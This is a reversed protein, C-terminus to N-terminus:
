ATRQYDFEEFFTLAEKDLKIDKSEIHRNLGIGEITKCRSLAVYLSGEAAWNGLSIYVSDLTLGQARHVTVAYACQCAIQSISGTEIYSVEGDNIIPVLTKVTKQNVTIEEGSSTIIIPLPIKGDTFDVIRGITGNKYSESNSTCVIQEGIHLTITRPIQSLTEPSNEGVIDAFYTFGNEWLNRDYLERSNIAEREKNTSVLTLFSTGNQVAFEERSIVRNDLLKIDSDSEYGFRIRALAAIFKSDSQRYIKEMFHVSPSVEKFRVANFFFRNTGYLQKKYVEIKKPVIFVPPLQMVDGFLHLCIHHGNVASANLLSLIWDMLACSIMSMEDILIQNLSDLLDKNKKYDSEKFVPIAVPPLNFASHVTLAPCGEDRLRQAAIGTPALCLTHQPDDRWLKKLLTSKGCGGPGQHITINIDSYFNKMIPKEKTLLFASKIFLTREQNNKKHNRAIRLYTM